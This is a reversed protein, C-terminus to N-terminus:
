LTDWNPGIFRIDNVIKIRETLINHFRNVEKWTDTLISSWRNFKFLVCPMGHVWLMHYSKNDDEERKMKMYCKDVKMFFFHLKKKLDFKKGKFFEDNEVEDFVM